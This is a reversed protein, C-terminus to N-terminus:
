PTAQRGGREGGGCYEITRLWSKTIWARAVLRKRDELEGAREKPRQEGCHLVKVALTAMEQTIGHTSL